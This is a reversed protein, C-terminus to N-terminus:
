RCCLLCPLALLSDRRRWHPSARGSWCLTLQPSHHGSGRHGIGWSSGATGETSRHATRRGCQGLRHWQRCGAVSHCLSEGSGKHGAHMLPGSPLANGHLTGTWFPGPEMMLVECWSHFSQHVAAASLVSCHALASAAYLPNLINM